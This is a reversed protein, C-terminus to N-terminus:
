KKPRHQVLNITFDLGNVSLDIYKEDNKVDVVANQDLNNCLGTFIAAIIQKKLPNEKKERPKREKKQSNEAKAQHVTATIRNKKAKDTLEEVTEDTIYEEDVLWTYVAENYSIGLSKQLREIDKDPISVTKGNDLEYKM